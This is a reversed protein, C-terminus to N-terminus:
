RQGSQEVAVATVGLSRGKQAGAISPDRVINRTAYGSSQSVVRDRYRETFAQHYNRDDTALVVMAGPHAALYADVYKYFRELPVKPHTVKDTGRLHVGLLQSSKGRWATLLQAAERRIEPRVRVWRQM